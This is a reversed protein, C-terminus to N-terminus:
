LCEFLNCLINTFSTTTTSASGVLVGGVDIGTVLDSVNSANVSGGYLIKSKAKHSRIIEIAEKIESLDSIVAGGIAWIPEYAIVFEGESPLCERLQRILVERLMGATREAMSEGVCIIPILGAEIAAEAKVKIDGNSEHCTSRRESHGVIVYTCGCEKLMRASVEGTCNKDNVFCNQAGFEVASPNEFSSISGIVTMPPCLVISCKDSRYPKLEDLFTGVLQADGSTKWNAVLLFSM